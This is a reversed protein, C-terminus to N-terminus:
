RVFIQSYIRLLIDYFTYLWDHSGQPKDKPSRSIRKQGRVHSATKPIVKEDEEEDDDVM